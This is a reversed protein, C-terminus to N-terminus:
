GALLVERGDELRFSRGDLVAAVRGDGQPQPRAGRRSPRATLPWWAAPLPWQSFNAALHLRQARRRRVRNRTPSLERGSSANEQTLKCPVLVEKSKPKIGFRLVMARRRPRPLSAPAGTKQQRRSQPTEALLLPCRM